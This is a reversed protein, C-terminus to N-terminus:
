IQLGKFTPLMKRFRFKLKQFFSTNLGFSSKITNQIATPVLEKIFETCMQTPLSDWM